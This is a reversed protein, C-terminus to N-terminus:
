AAEWLHWVFPPMQFSAIHAEGRFIPHGTGILRFRRKVYPNSTDVAAWICPTQDQVEVLLISAGDPMDLEFTDDIAFQFKHVTRM